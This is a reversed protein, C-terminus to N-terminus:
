ESEFSAVRAFSIMGQGNNLAARETHRLMYKDFRKQAELNAAARSSAVGGPLETHRYSVAAASGESAQLSVGQVPYVRSALVPQAAVPASLAPGFQNMSQIGVVVAVAVSAAVAFGALPKLFFSQGKKIGQDTSVSLVDDQASSLPEASIAERLQASIDLQRFSVDATNNHMVDRLLHYRSWTEDLVQVHEDTTTSLLRRLELENAEGDMLASVSERLQESM